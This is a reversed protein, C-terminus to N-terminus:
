VERQPISVSGRGRRGMEEDERGAEWGDGGESVSGGWEEDSQEDEAVVIIEVCSELVMNEKSESRSEVITKLEM